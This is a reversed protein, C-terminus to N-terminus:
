GATQGATEAHPADSSHTMFALVTSVFWDQADYHVYHGGNPAIVQRGHAYRATLDRQAEAWLAERASPNDSVSQSMVLTPHLMSRSAEVQRTTASLSAFEDQAGRPAIWMLVAPATCMGVEAAECRRTFDAPRSDELILGAIEDAHHAAFYEAFLGGLSHGLVFYPGRVGSQALLATLERDAAMADRVGTAAASGGYGARDYIIVTGHEALLPAIDAFTDMGDGLGSIMVLVPEGSGLVRYTVQRGEVSATKTDAPPPSACSGLALTLSILVSAFTSQRLM